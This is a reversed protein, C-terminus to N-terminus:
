RSAGISEPLTVDALDGPGQIEWADLEGLASVIEETLEAHKATENAVFTHWGSYTGGFGSEINDRLYQTRESAVESARVIRTSAGPGINPHLVLSVPGELGREASPFRERFPTPDVAFKNFPSFAQAEDPEFDDDIGAISPLGDYKAITGYGLHPYDPWGAVIVDGNANKKALAKDGSMVEFGFHEVLELLITSKGAGKSGSIIAIDGDRHAATAHLVVVGKNEQDKIVLDRVLEVLDMAGAESTGVDIVGAARDFVMRTQSKSCELLEIAGVTSKIAPVTFFESASKRVFIDHWETAQQWIAPEFPLAHVRLTAIADPTSGTRPEWTFHTSLFRVATEVLSLDDVECDITSDHFTLSYALM